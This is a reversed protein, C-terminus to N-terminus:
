CAVLLVGNVIPYYSPYFPPFFIWSFGIGCPFRRALFLFFWWAAAGNFFSSSLFSFDAYVGELFSSFLLLLVKKKKNKKWFAFFGLVSEYTVHNMSGCGEEGWDDFAQSSSSPFVILLVFCLLLLVFCLLLLAFCV